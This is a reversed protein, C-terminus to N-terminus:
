KNNNEYPKELRLYELRTIIPSRTLFMNSVHFDNLKVKYM